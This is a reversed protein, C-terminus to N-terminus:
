VSTTGPASWAMTSAVNRDMWSGVSGTLHVKGGDATVEVHDDSLWSHHLVHTIDQDLKLTDPRVTIKIQNSVGTIGQLSRVSRAVADRKYHWGVEGTQTVFGNEVPVKM